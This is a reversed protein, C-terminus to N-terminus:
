TIPYPGAVDMVLREMPVGVIYQHSPERRGWRRKLMACDCEMCNRNVDTRMGPWYFGQEALALTRATGLHAAIAGGHLRQLLDKRRRDPVVLQYRWGQGELEYFRRHLVGQVVFLWEWQHWLVKADRFEPSVDECRPCDDGVWKWQMIPGIDPNADQEPKRFGM